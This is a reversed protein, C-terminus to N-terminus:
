SETEGARGGGATRSSSPRAALSRREDQHRVRAEEVDVVAAAAARKSEELWKGERGDGRGSLDGSGKSKVKERGSVGGDIRRGFAIKVNEAARAGGVTAERM